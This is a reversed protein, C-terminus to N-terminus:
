GEVLIAQVPCASAAEEVQLVFADDPSAEFKLKRDADLEFVEPALMACLGHTECVSLDVKIHV